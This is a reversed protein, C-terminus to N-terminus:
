CKGLFDKVAEMFEKPKDLYAPHSAGPIIIVNFRRSLLERNRPHSVSDREGWIGLVPVGIRDLNVRDVNVPGVVVGCRADYGKELYRLVTAGGISAGLLAPRTIKLDALVSRLFEAFDEEDGNIHDTRSRPGYPMDIAYVAYHASLFDFVGSEVWANSDFNFGHVLVVPSGSSKSALYRYKIGNISGHMEM